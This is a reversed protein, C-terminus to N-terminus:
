RVEAVPGLPIAGPPPPLDPEDDRHFRGAVWRGAKRGTGTVAAGADHAKRAEQRVQRAVEAPPHATCFRVIALVGLAALVFPIWPSTIWGLDRAAVVALFTLGPHESIASWVFRAALKAAAVVLWITFRVALGIVLDLIPAILPM